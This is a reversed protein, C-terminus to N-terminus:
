RLKYTVYFSLVIKAVHYLFIQMPVLVRVNLEVEIQKLHKRGTDTCFEEDAQHGPFFFYIKRIRDIKVTKVMQFKIIESVRPFSIKM